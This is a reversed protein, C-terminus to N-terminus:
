KVDHREHRSAGRKSSWRVPAYFMVGLGVVWGIDAGGVVVTAALWFFPISMGALIAVFAWRRRPLEVSAYDCCWLGLGLVMGAFLRDHRILRSFFHPLVHEILSNRNGARRVVAFARSPALAKSLSMAGRGNLASARM